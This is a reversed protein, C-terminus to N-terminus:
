KVFLRYSPCEWRREVRGENILRQVALCPIDVTYEKFYLSVDVLDLKGNEIKIINYVGEIISNIQRDRQRDM